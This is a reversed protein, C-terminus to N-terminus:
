DLVAPEDCGHEHLAIFACVLGSGSDTQLVKNCDIIEPTVAAKGDRRFRANGDTFKLIL